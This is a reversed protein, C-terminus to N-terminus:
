SYRNNSKLEFLDRFSKGERTMAEDINGFWIVCAYETDLNALSTAAVQFHELAKCMKELDVNDEYDNALLLKTVQEIEYNFDQKNIGLDELKYIFISSKM